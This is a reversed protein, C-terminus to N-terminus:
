SPEQSLRPNIVVELARGILTFSLVVLVVCIGPPLVWWWAGNIIASSNYADELMTGWSPHTPDGLGLFSLTTETLIAISVTLTANALVLPLVNPLVHRVMQMTHGVGLVQAREMYPRGEISLTQARVLRATGAWSTVGIVLVIVAEGGGLVTLIVVALPLWPIVLFWDTFRVLALGVWNRYHGGAIGITTGILMAVASAALGVVLSIRAGWFLEALVSRGDADTGLPFQWDPSQWAPNHTTLTVDLMSKPFLTGAAVAMVVFLGLLAVGALGSRRSAFSRAFRRGSERRRRRALQRRTPVGVDPALTTEDTTSV